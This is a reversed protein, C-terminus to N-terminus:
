IPEFCKLTAEFGGSIARILENDIASGMKRKKTQNEGSKQQQWPKGHTGDELINGISAVIRPLLGIGYKGLLSVMKEVLRLDRGAARVGGKARSKCIRHASGVRLAECQMEVRTCPAFGLVSRRLRVASMWKGSLVRGSARQVGPGRKKEAGKTRVCVKGQKRAKEETVRLRGSCARSKSTRVSRLAPAEGVGAHGADGRRGLGAAGAAASAAEM